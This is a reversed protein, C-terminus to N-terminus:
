LKLYLRLILASLSGSFKNLTLLVISNLIYNSIVKTDKNNDKFMCSISETNKNTVQLM